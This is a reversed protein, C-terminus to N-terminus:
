CPGIYLVGHPRQALHPEVLFRRLAAAGAQDEREGSPKRRWMTRAMAPLRTSTPRPRQGAPCIAAIRAELSRDWAASARRM